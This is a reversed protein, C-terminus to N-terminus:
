LLAKYGCAADEERFGGQQLFAVSCLTELHWFPVLVERGLRAEEAPIRAEAGCSGTPNGRAPYGGEAPVHSSVMGGCTHPGARAM